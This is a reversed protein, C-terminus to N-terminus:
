RNRSNVGLPQRPSGHEPKVDCMQAILVAVIREAAKGDWKELVNSPRIQGRLVKAPARLINERRTGALYNTGATCTIPRETTNRLTICPVGLVTTEEQAGGSDTFVVRANMNLHLLELYGLPGMASIGHVRQGEQLYHELGFEEISARTRPHVPFVIPLERAVESLTSLIEM